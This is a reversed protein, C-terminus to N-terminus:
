FGGIMSGIRSAVPFGIGLGGAIIGMRKAIDQYQEAKVARNAYNNVVDYIGSERMWGENNPNRAFSRIEAPTKNSFLTAVYEKAINNVFADDGIATKLNKVTDASRFFEGAFEETDKALESPDYKEKKLLRDMLRTQFPKLTQSAAKYAADAAQYEPSWRYLGNELVNIIDRRTNADLAKYGTFETGPKNVERLYRLETIVSDIDKEKVKTPTTRELRGSVKGKGVPVKEGGTVSAKVADITRDLAAIKERAVEFDKDGAAVRKMGELQTIVNRGEDSLGFSTQQAQKRRATTIARDYLNEAEAARKEFRAGAAGKVKSELKEGLSVLGAREAIPAPQRFSKGTEVAKQIGKAAARSPVPVGVVEGISEFGATRENPQTVRPITQKVGEAIPTYIQSMTPLSTSGTVFESVSGPIGLLSPVAAVTGAVGGRVLSEASSLAEGPVKSLTFGEDKPARKPTQTKLWQEPSMPEASTASSKNDQKSLWEEPSM